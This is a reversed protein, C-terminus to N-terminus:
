NHLAMDEIILNGAPQVQERWLRYDSGPDYRSHSIKAIYVVHTEENSSKNRQERWMTYDPVKGQRIGTALVTREGPTTQVQERWMDYEGANTVSSVTLFALGMLSASVTSKISKSTM